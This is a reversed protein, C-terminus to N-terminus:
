HRHRNEKEYIATLPAHNASRNRRLTHIVQPYGLLSLSISLDQQSGAVRALLNGDQSILHICIIANRLLLPQSQRTIQM